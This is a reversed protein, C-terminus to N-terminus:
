NPLLKNGLKLETLKLEQNKSEIRCCATASDATTGNKTVEAWQRFWSEASLVTHHKKIM